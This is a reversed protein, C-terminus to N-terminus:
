ALSNSIMTVAATGPRASPFAEAFVESVSAGAEVLEGPFRGFPCTVEGEGSSKADADGVYLV